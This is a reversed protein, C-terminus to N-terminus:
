FCCPTWGFSAVSNATAIFSVGCKDKCEPPLYMIRIRFLFKLKNHDIYSLYKKDKNTLNKFPHSLVRLTNSISNFSLKEFM